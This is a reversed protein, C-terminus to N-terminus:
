LWVVCICGWFHRKLFPIKAVAAMISCNENFDNSHIWTYGEPFSVGSDTEIYGVGDNFDMEEGNFAVKGQVDHKMSVIGHHCEM